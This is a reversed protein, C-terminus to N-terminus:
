HFPAFNIPLCPVGRCALCRTVVLILAFPPTLSIFGTAGLSGYLVSQILASAPSSPEFPSGSLMFSAGEFEFRAVFEKSRSVGPSSACRHGGGLLEDTM